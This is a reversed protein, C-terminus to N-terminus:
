LWSKLSFSAASLDSPVRIHLTVMAKPQTITIDVPLVPRIQWVSQTFQAVPCAQQLLDKLHYQQAFESLCVKSKYVSCAHKHMDCKRKQQCFNLCM